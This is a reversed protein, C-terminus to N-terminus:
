KKVQLSGCVYQECNEGKAFIDYSPRVSEPVFQEVARAVSHATDSFSRSLSGAECLLRQICEQSRLAAFVVETLKEVQAISLSPLGSDSSSSDKGEADRRRRRNRYQHNGYSSETAGYPTTEEYPYPTETPYENQPFVRKAFGPAIIPVVVVVALVVAAVVVVVAIIGLPILLLLPLASIKKVISTSEEEALLTDASEPVVLPTLPIPQGYAPAPFSYPVSTALPAAAVPAASYPAPTYANM